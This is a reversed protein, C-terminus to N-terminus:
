SRQLSFGGVPPAPLAAPRANAGEAAEELRLLKGDVTAGCEMQLQRYTINGTVRAGAQLELFHLVELDGEITGNVVADHVRVSGVVTGRESLVLLGQEAPDSSVNGCVRGDIRLGGSFDIDGKVTVGTGVLATLQSVNLRPPNKKRGFM